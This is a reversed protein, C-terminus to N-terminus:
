LDGRDLLEQCEICHRAWPVATLRAKQITKSCNVCKGYEGSEIRGLARDIRRVLDRENIRVGYSVERNFADTARDGLDPTETDGHQSETTRAAQVLEQVERRKEELRKRFRDLETRRM